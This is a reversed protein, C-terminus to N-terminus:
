GMVAGTLRDGVPPEGLCGDARVNSREIRSITARRRLNDLPQKRWTPVGRFPPPIVFPSDDEVLFATHLFAMGSPKLLPVLNM